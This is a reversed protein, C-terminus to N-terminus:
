SRAQSFMAHLSSSSPSSPEDFPDENKECLSTVCVCHCQSLRMGARLETLFYDYFARFHFFIEPFFFQADPLIVGCADPSSSLPPRCRRNETYKSANILLGGRAIRARMLFHRCACHLLSGLLLFFHFFTPSILPFISSISVDIFFFFFFFFSSSLSLSITEFAFHRV